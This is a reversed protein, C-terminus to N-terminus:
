EFLNEGYQKVIDISYSSQNFQDTLQYTRIAQDESDAIGMSLCMAKSKRKSDRNIKELSGTLHYFHTVLVSNVGIEKLAKLVEHALYEGEKPSTTTFPENILVFSNETLVDFIKKFMMSEFGLRGERSQYDEEKQYHTFIYDCLSITAKKCPVYCGLHALILTLGVAQVLTTKGGKNAGVLLLATGNKDFHLDNLV